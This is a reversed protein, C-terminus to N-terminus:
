HKQVKKLATLDVYVAKNNIKSNLFEEDVFVVEELKNKYTGFYSQILQCDDNRIATSVSLRFEEM